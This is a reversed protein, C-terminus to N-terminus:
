RFRVVGALTDIASAARPEYVVNVDIRQRLAEEDSYGANRVALKRSTERVANTM